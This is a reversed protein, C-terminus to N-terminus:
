PAPAGRRGPLPAEGHQILLKQGVYASIRQISDFNEPIIEQDGVSIGFREEVFHIVELVGVSDMAGSDSLSADDPLEAADFAYNVFRRLERHIEESMEGVRLHARGRPM